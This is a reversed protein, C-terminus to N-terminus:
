LFLFWADTSHLWWKYHLCSWQNYYFHDLKDWSPIPVNDCASRHSKNHKFHWIFATNFTAMVILPSKMEKINMLHKDGFKKILLFNNATRSSSIQLVYSFRPRSIPSRLCLHLSLKGPLLYIVTVVVISVANVCFIRNPMMNWGTSFLNFSSSMLVKQNELSVNRAYSSVM